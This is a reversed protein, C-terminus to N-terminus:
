RLLRRRRLQLHDKLREVLEAARVQENDHLRRSLRELFRRLEDRLRRRFRAARRFANLRRLQRPRARPDLRRQLVSESVAPFLEDGALSFILNLVGRRDLVLARPDKRLRNVLFIRVALLDQHRM